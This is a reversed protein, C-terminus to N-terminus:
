NKRGTPTTCSCDRDDCFPEGDAIFFFLAQLAYIVVAATMDDGYDIFKGVFKNKLSGGDAMGGFQALYFERPKAPGEM